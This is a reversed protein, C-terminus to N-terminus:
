HIVFRTSPTVGHARQAAAVHGEGGNQEATRAWTTKSARHGKEGGRQSSDLEGAIPPQELSWEWSPGWNLVSALSPLCRHHFPRAWGPPTSRRSRGKLAVIINSPRPSAAHGKLLINQGGSLYEWTWWEPCPSPSLNKSQCALSYQISIGPSPPLTHGLGASSRPCEKHWLHLYLLPYISQEVRNLKMWVCCVSNRFTVTSVMKLATKLNQQM